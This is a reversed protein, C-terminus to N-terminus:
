TNPFLAVYPAKEKGEHQSQTEKMLLPGQHDVSLQPLTVPKQVTIYPSPVM